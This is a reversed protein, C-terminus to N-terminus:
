GASPKDPPERRQRCFDLYDDISERFAAAVDSSETGSFTIVDRTGVVTGHFEGTVVDYKARGMYGEYPGVDWQREQNECKAV